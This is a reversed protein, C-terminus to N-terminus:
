EIFLTRAAKRGKKSTPDVVDISDHAHKSCVMVPGEKKDLVTLAMREGTGCQRNCQPHACAWQQTLRDIDLVDEDERIAGIFKDLTYGWKQGSDQTTRM